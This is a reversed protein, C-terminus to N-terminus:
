WYLCRMCVVVVGGCVCVMRGGGGSEGTPTEAQEALKRKLEEIENNLKDVQGQEENKM